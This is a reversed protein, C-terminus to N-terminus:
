TPRPWRLWPVGPERAFLLTDDRLGAPVPAIAEVTPAAAPPLWSRSGRLPSVAPLSLGYGRGDERTLPGRRTLEGLQGVAAGAGGTM